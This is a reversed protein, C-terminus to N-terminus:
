SEDLVIQCTMKPRAVMTEIILGVIGIHYKDLTFSLGPEIVERCGAIQLTSRGAFRPKPHYPSFSTLTWATVNVLKKM